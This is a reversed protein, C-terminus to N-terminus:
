KECLSSGCGANWRTLADLDFKENAAHVNDDELGFGLLLTDIGLQKSCRCWRSAGGERM